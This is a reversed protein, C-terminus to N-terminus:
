QRAKVTLKELATRVAAPDFFVRRGLRVFPILRKRQLERLWRLSPRSADDFLVELLRLASLLQSQQNPDNFSM